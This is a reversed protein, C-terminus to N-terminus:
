ATLTRELVDLRATLPARIKVDIGFGNPREAIGIVRDTAFNRRLEGVDNMTEPAATLNASIAKVLIIAQDGKPDRMGRIAKELQKLM